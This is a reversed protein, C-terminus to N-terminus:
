PTISPICKFKGDELDKWELKVGVRAAFENITQKMTEYPLYDCSDILQELEVNIFHQQTAAKQQAKKQAIKARAEQKGQERAKEVAELRAIELAEAIQREKDTQQLISQKDKVLRQIIAMRLDFDFAIELEEIAQASTQQQEAAIEGRRSRTISKTQTQISTEQTPFTLQSEKRAM